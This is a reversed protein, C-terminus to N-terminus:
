GTFTVQGTVTGLPSGDAAFVDCVTSGRGNKSAVLGVTFDYARPQFVGTRGDSFTLQAASWAVVPAHNNGDNIVYGGSGLAGCDFTGTAALKANLPAASASAAGLGIVGASMGAAGLLGAFVVARSVLRNKMTRKGRGIETDNRM